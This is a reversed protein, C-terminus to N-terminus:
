KKELSFTVLFVKLEVRIRHNIHSEARYRPATRTTMGKILPIVVYKKIYFM